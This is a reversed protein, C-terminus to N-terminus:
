SPADLGGASRSRGGVGCWLLGCLGCVFRTRLARVNPLLTGVRKYLPKCRSRFGSGLTLAAILCVFLRARVEDSKGELRLELVELGEATKVLAGLSRGRTPADVDPALASVPERLQNGLVDFPAVPRLGDYLTSAVRLTVRRV